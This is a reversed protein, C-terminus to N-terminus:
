SFEMRLVLLRANSGNDCDKELPFGACLNGIVPLSKLLNDKVVSENM